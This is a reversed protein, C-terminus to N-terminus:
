REDDHEDDRDNPEADLATPRRRSAGLHAAIDQGGFVRLVHFEDGHIEYVVSFRGYATIRRGNGYEPRLQFLAGTEAINSIHLRLKHLFSAANEPSSDAIYDFIADLDSRAKPAYTPIRSQM